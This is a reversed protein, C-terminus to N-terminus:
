KEKDMRFSDCLVVNRTCISVHEVRLSLDECSRSGEKCFRCWTVSCVVKIKM